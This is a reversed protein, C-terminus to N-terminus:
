PESFDDAHMSGKITVSNDPMTFQYESETVFEGDDAGVVYIDLYGDTVCITNVTVTDGARAWSPCSEVFAPCDVSISHYTGGGRMIGLVILVIVVIIRGRM